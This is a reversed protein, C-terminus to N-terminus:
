HIRVKLDKAVKKKKVVDRDEGRGEAQEKGEDDDERKRKLSGRPTGRKLGTRFKGGIKV